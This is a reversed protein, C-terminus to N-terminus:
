GLWEGKKAIREHNLTKIRGPYRTNRLAEIYREPLIKASLKISPMILFASLAGCLKFFDRKNLKM